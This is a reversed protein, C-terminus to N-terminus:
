LNICKLKTAWELLDEPLDAKFTLPKETIPHPFSLRYAHLLQRKANFKKNLSLSGYLSDGLVPTKRMQMHVRIQHTRGTKLIVKVISVKGDSAVTEIETIAEKGGDLVKMQKRHVPDRGIPADIVAKGPNGVCIAIYEKYVKRNSFLEVLKKQAATTKAAVILGSTDKDLRHIIGPRLPEDKFADKLNQCYYLLANVVTGTWNGPAPHVVLGAPKDIVILHDDEYVIKLPINEPELDMEPTLVFRIEVSDLDKPKYHKKVPEGNVLVNGEEFLYQFYTRSKIDKFRAALTKDLREGIESETITIFEIEEPDNM